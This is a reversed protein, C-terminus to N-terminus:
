GWNNLLTLFDTAGVEGDLDLDALCCQDVCQGWANLLDLFDTVGVSGDGDLDGFKVPFPDGQFEYAGMDVVVPIGCGPDFDIKDAAFRPNGDLDTDAHPAIAWNHGADICPSGPSLRYEYVQYSAGQLVISTWNGWITITAETNAVVLMRITAFLGTNPDLFSGVLEGPVFSASGDAFTTQSNAEDFTPDETWSGSPGLAFLPDADINGIGPWGGQVNSHAVTATGDIPNGGSNRIICNTVMPNSGLLNWMASPLSNLNDAFTCNIVSPSSDVNTMAGSGECSANNSFLCNIVLPDSNLNVMAGGDAGKGSGENFNFTCSLVTPHSDLNAMAGGQGFEGVENGWFVCNTVMPSGNLNYMAGGRLGASNSRFTCRTVTPSSNLNFMGGGSGASGRTITFGELVTGPGERTECTVVTGLSFANIITVDPGDSSRM